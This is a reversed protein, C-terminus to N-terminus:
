VEEIKHLLRLIMNAQHGACIAVRPAYMEYGTELGTKNDGCIYLRKMRRETKMENASDYGGMGSGSVVITERTHSMIQSVLMAKNEPCDFAECVIPYDKFLEVVNEETVKTVQIHVEITPDIEEIHRKLAEVKYCGVDKKTYYQRNLNSIDVRDFDVIFLPTVGSRALMIAVNSGLGGAGAIAVGKM